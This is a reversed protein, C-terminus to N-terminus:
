KRADVVISMAIRPSAVREDNDPTRQINGLAYDIPNLVSQGGHDTYHLYLINRFSSADFLNKATEYVPFWLHGGDVVQGNEFRGGGGPDFLINGNAGKVSRDFLIPCRYDPVSFRFLGGPRLVRFVEDFIRGVDAYEIHEFVDESQFIAVSNDPIPLVDRIDHQINRSSSVFPTIGYHTSFQRLTRDINGAYLRPEKAKLADDWSAAKRIGISCLIRDTKDLWNNPM